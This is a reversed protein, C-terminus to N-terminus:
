ASSTRSKNASRLRAQQRLQRPTVGRNSTATLSPASVISSPLAAPAVDTEMSLAMAQELEEDDVTPQAEVAEDDGPTENLSESIDTNLKLNRGLVSLVGHETRVAYRGTQQNFGSIQGTVGNLDARSVLGDVVVRAGDELLPGRVQASENRPEAPKKKPQKSGTIVPAKCVPCEHKCGLFWPRVCEDHFAHGCTNIKLAQEGCCMDEQCMVCIEGIASDGGEITFECLQSLLDAETACHELARLREQVGHYLSMYQRHMKAHEVDTNDLAVQHELAVKGGPVAVTWKFCIGKSNQRHKASLVGIMPLGRRSLLHRLIQDSFVALLQQVDPDEMNCPELGVIDKAVSCLQKYTETSKEFNRHREAPHFEKEFRKIESARHSVDKFKLKDHALDATLQELSQLTQEVQKVAEAKKATWDQHELVSKCWAYRKKLKVLAEPKANANVLMSIYDKITVFMNLAHPLLETICEAKKLEHMLGRAVRAAPPVDDLGQGANLRDFLRANMKFQLFPERSEEAVDFGFPHAAEARHRECHWVIAASVVEGTFDCTVGGGPYCEKRCSQAMWAGCVCQIGTSLKLVAPQLAVPFATQAIAHRFERFNFCELDRCLELSSPKLDEAVEGLESKLNTIWSHYARTAQGRSLSGTCTRDEAEFADRALTLMLSPWFAKRSQTRWASLRSAIIKFLLMRNVSHATRTLQAVMSLMQTVRWGIWKQGRLGRAIQGRASQKPKPPMVSPSNPPASPKQHEENDIAKFALGLIRQLESEDSSTQGALGLDNAGHPEMNAIRIIIRLNRFLDDM